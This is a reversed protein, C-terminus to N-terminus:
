SMLRPLTMGLNDSVVFISPSLPQQLIEIESVNPLHWYNGLAMIAVESIINYFVNIQNLRWKKQLKIYSLNEFVFHAAEFHTTEGIFLVTEGYRRIPNRWLRQSIHIVHMYRKSFLSYRCQIRYFKTENISYISQMNSARLEFGLIVFLFM